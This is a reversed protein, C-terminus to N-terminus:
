AESRLGECKLQARGAEYRRRNGFRMDKGPKSCGPQKHPKCLACCRRTARSVRKHHM